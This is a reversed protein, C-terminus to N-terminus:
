KKKGRRKMAKRRKKMMERNFKVRQERTSLIKNLVGKKQFTLKRGRPKGVVRKGVLNGAIAGIPVGVIMGGIGGVATGIVFGAGAGELNILGLKKERKTLRVEKSKPKKKGVGKPISFEIKTVFTSPRGRRPKESIGVRQLLTLKKKKTMKIIREIIQRTGLGQSDAPNRKEM